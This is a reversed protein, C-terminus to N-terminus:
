PKDNTTARQDSGAPSDQRVVSLDGTALKRFDPASLLKIQGELTEVAYAIYQDLQPPYYLIEGAPTYTMVTKEDFRFGLWEVRGTSTELVELEHGCRAALRDGTPNLAVQSNWWNGLELLTDGTISDLVLTPDGNQIAAIRREGPSVSTGAYSACPIQRKWLIRSAAVDWIALPYSTWPGSDEGVALWQRGQALWQGHRLPTDFEALTGIPEGTSSSWLRVIKESGWTALKKGDPHWMLGRVASVDGQIAGAPTGTATDWFRVTGDDSRSVLRQGDPSWAVFTVAASHGRLVHETKGSAASWIRVM